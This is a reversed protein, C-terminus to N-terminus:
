RVDEEDMVREVEARVSPGALSRDLYWSMRDRAGAIRTVEGELKEWRAAVESVDVRAAVAGAAKLHARAEEATPAAEGEPVRCRLWVIAGRFRDPQESGALLARLDAPALDLAVVCTSDVPMRVVRSPEPLTSKERQPKKAM